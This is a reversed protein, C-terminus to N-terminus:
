RAHHRSRRPWIQLGDEEELDAEASEGKGLNMM